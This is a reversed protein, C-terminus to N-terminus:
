FVERADDVGLVNHRYQRAQDGGYAEATDILNIDFDLAASVLQISTVEDIERGSTVCGLGLRSVQVHSKGLRRKELSM